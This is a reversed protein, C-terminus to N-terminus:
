YIGELVKVVEEARLVGDNQGANALARSAITPLDDKPVNYASLSTKLGLNYVLKTIEAGLTRIDNEISISSPIHLYSLAQALAKKDDPTAFSAQLTVVPGLTLCSTMGHPIHYKAGLRHGLSHSLGLPRHFTCPSTLILNPSKIM